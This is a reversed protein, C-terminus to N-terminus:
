NRHVLNNVANWLKRSDTLNSSILNFNYNRKAKIIAAHYHNTASRLYASLQESLRCTSTM